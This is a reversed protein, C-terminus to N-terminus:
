EVFDGGIVDKQIVQRASNFKFNVEVRQFCKNDGMLVKRAHYGDGGDEYESSLDNDLNIRGTLTEGCRKCKVNFTYYNQTYSQPSAFLKKFFNM